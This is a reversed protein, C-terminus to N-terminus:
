LEDYYYSKKCNQCTCRLPNAFYCEDVYVVLNLSGCPCRKIYDSAEAQKYENLQEQDTM